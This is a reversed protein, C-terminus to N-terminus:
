AEVRVFSSWTSTDRVALQSHLRGDVDRMAWMDPFLRPSIGSSFSISGEDWWLCM